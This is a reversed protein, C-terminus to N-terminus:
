PVAAAPCASRPAPCVPPAAAQKALFKGKGGTASADAAIM